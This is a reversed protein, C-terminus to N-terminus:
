VTKGAKSYPGRDINSDRTPKTTNNAKTNTRTGIANAIISTPVAPKATIRLQSVESFSSPFTTKSVPKDKVSATIGRNIRIPLRNVIEPTLWRGDVEKMCLITSYTYNGIAVCFYIEKGDPTIAVDRTFMGTSVIGPAFLTPISDPLPQGLYPGSLNPFSSESEVQEATRNCSFATLALIIILSIVSSTKM